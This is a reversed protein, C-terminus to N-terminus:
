LDKLVRNFSTKIRTRGIIFCIIIWCILGIGLFKWPIMTAAPSMHLHLTGLATARIIYLIFLGYIILIGASIRWIRLSKNWYAIWVNQKTAIDSAVDQLALNRPNDAGLARVMTQFWIADEKGGLITWLSFLLMAPLMYGLAVISWAEYSQM